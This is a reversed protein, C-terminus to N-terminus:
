RGIDGAQGKSLQTGPRSSFCRNIRGRQRLWEARRPAMIVLVEQGARIRGRAIRGIGIKGVYSSYDLSCVQFQLPGDPDDQAGSGASLIAEFLPWCPAAACRRNPEPTGNLASCLHSSTSSRRARASSTSCTSRQTQGRLRGRAPVTSRTGVVDAQKALAKRTVIPNAADAGGPLWDTLRWRVM